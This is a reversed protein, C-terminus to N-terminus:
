LGDVAELEIPEVGTVRLVDTKEMLQEFNGPSTKGIPLQIGFRTYGRHQEIHAHLSGLSLSLRDCDRCQFLVIDGCANYQEHLHNLLAM